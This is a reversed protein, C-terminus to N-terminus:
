EALNVHENITALVMDPTLERMCAFHKKPCSDRGIHSCPRCRLEERELITVGPYPPIFGLESTSSGALLLVPSKVATALHLLGTDGTVVLKAARLRSATEALTLSGCYNEITSKDGLRKLKAAFQQERVGGFLELRWGVALLQAVLQEWYDTPWSKTFKGAGPVLALTPEGTQEQETYHYWAPAVVPPNDRLLSLYRQTVFPLSFRYRTHLLMWRQLYSKQQRRIKGPLRKTLWRSRLSAHLDYTIDPKFDQLQKKLVNLTSEASLKFLELDFPWDAPIESFIQKTVYGITAEPYRQRLERVFPETLILDGLSSFRVVLIRRPTV